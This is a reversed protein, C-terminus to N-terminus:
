RKSPRKISRKTTKKTAKKTTKKTTKKSTRKPKMKSEYHVDVEIGPTNLNSLLSALQSASDRDPLIVEFANGRVPQIKVRVRGDELYLLEVERWGNRRGLADVRDPPPYITSLISATEDDMDAPDRPLWSPFTRSKRWTAIERRDSPAASGLILKERAAEPAASRPAKFGHGRAKRLDTGSEYSKKTIGAGLLRRRYAPSLDDFARRVRPM